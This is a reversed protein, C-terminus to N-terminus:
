RRIILCKVILWRIRRLLLSRLWIIKHVQRCWIISDIRRDCQYMTHIAYWTLSFPLGRDVIATLPSVNQHGFLLSRYSSLFSRVFAVVLSVRMKSSLLALFFTKLTISVNSCAVANSSLKFSGTYLAANTLIM